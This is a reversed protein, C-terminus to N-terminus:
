TFFTGAITNVAVAVIVAGFLYSLLSHRFVTRRNVGSAEAVDDVTADLGRQALVTMAAVLIRSRAVDRQEDALLPAPHVVLQDYRQGKGIDSLLSM